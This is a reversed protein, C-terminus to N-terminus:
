DFSYAFEGAPATVAVKSIPRGEMM